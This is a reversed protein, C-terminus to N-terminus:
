LIGLSKKVQPAYERDEQNIHSLWWHKLFALVPAADQDSASERAIAVTRQMLLRHREAHAELGAFGAKKMLAEEATFHIRTYQELIRLTPRLAGLGKGGQIFYHFSNITSVIGRHQEDLIPIGLENDPSWVIYLLNAM